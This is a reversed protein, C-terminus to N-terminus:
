AIVVVVFQTVKFYIKFLQNVLNLMGWKKSDELAARSYVNVIVVCYIVCREDMLLMLFVCVSFICRTFSLSTICSISSLCVYMGLQVKKKLLDM